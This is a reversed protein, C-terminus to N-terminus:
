SDLFWSNKGSKSMDSNLMNVKSVSIDVFPSFFPSIFFKSSHNISYSSLGVLFFLNKEQLYQFTDLYIIYKWSELFHM